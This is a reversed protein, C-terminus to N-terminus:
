VNKLSRIESAQMETIVGLTVYRDLQDDRVYGMLYRDKIREFM